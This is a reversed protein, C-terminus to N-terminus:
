AHISSYGRLSCNDTRRVYTKVCLLTAQVPLTELCPNIMQLVSPAIRLAIIQLVLGNSRIMIYYSRYNISFYSQRYYEYCNRIELLVEIKHLLTCVYSTHQLTHTAPSLEGSHGMIMELTPGRLLAAVNEGCRRLSTYVQTCYRSM